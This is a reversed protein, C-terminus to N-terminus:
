EDRRPAFRFPADIVLGFSVEIFRLKLTNSIKIKGVSNAWTACACVCFIDTDACPVPTTGPYAHSKPPPSGPHGLVAPTLLPMLNLKENLPVPGPVLPSIGTLPVQLAVSGSVPILISHAVPNAKTRNNKCSSCSSPVHMM